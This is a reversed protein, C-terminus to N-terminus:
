QMLEISLLQISLSAKSDEFQTGNLQIGNLGGTGKTSGGRAQSIQISASLAMLGALVVGMIKLTKTM